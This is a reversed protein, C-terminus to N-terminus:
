FYYKVRYKIINTFVILYALSFTFGGIVDTFYHVGLYVRSLGTVVIFLTFLTIFITKSRKSINSIHVLYILFGYFAMATLSHGSPFSYGTEEILNIDTPRERSFINKLVLQLITISILNISMYLSYKKNKFFIFVFITIGIVVIGSGIYTLYKVINTLNDTIYKSIFDYIFSDLFIDNRTKVLIALIIFITISLLCVIWKLYKKM